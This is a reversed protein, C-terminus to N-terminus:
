LSEIALTIHVNAQDLEDIARHGHRDGADALYQAAMTLIRRTDVLRTILAYGESQDNHLQQEIRIAERDAALSLEKYAILRQEAYRATALATNAEDITM